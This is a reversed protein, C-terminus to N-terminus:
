YENDEENRFPDFPWLFALMPSLFTLGMSEMRSRQVALSAYRM